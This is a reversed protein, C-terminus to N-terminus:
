PVISSWSFTTGSEFGDGFIPPEGGGPGIYEDFGLDLTGIGNILNASDFGRNHLDVDTATPNLYNDCFDIAPSTPALHLEGIDANVYQPDLGVLSNGALMNSDDDMLLCRGTNGTGASGRTDELISSQIEITAGSSSNAAWSAVVPNGGSDVLFSNRALSIFGSDIKAGNIAQLVARGRNKWFGVGELYLSSSPGDVLMVPGPSATGHNADVFARLIEARGGSEVM